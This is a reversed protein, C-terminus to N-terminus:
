EFLVRVEDESLLNLFSGGETIISDILDRKKDQLDMIKEEISNKAVLNFVQVNSKQGYRHARDSAQDMISPNWWPDYHIVVNAGTLNLGVGGAKLSILFLEREGANFMETMEMREKSKTAGTLYFYEAIKGDPTFIPTKELESKIIDLMRTFQSFLLVRHGSEISLQITEIALNLKGSGGKYDELFLSPHCCLQRLRTLQALVRMRNDSFSNNEIINDFNAITELLTAQYLKSQELSMEAQLTTEIKIPLEKLVSEKIRRLVFPAIQRKLKTAANSNGYRIIPIEYIESFKNTSFLYGPMIFDFISWLEILTNEIPTGTLAFRVKGNLEKISKSTLTSPNKINQAEDAIIFAFTKDRYNDIDRKLMDYTTIFVDVNSLQLLDKRKDPMGAIIQTTLRPAFRAIESEWNFLLSTPCIVLSYKGKKRESELLAIIQLTKGLGMDDALIGGFGYHALTKLWYFGEEQYKRMVATLTKPLSFQPSVSYNFKNLLAEFNKNRKITLVNSFEESQVLENVYLAKHSHLSISKGQAENKSADLADLFKLSTSVFDDQMSFFRGDRLRFYKKRARYSDLAELLETISFGAEDLTINLLNGSLRLGLQPSPMKIINKQLSASVFIDANKKMEDIGSSLMAEGDQSPYLFLYMMEDDSLRYRGNKKDEVFGFSALQRKILYEAVIDRNFITRPVSLADFSEVGYDFDVRCIIDRKSTDFYLSTHLPLVNKSLKEDVIGKIIGLRKLTPLIITLFVNEDNGSILIERGPTEDLAKLLQEIIQGDFKEIRYLMEEVLIYKFKYGSIIKFAFDDSAVVTGSATHRINISFPPMSDVFTITQTGEIEANLSKGIFLAFFDDINHTTLKIERSATLTTYQMQYQRVFRKSSENYIDEEKTIFEIIKQSLPTFMSLRHSFSLGQGYTVKEGTKCSNAFSSLNKIVYLKNRGISFTVYLGATFSHLTPVLQIHTGNLLETSLPISEDIGDFIVEELKSTLMHAHQRMKSASIMRVHGEAFAFLAAVVHKCAGQWINHSECSCTYNKLGIKEDVNLVADYNKYNGEITARVITIDDAENFTNYSLIKGNRYYREGREYVDPNSSLKLITGKTINGGQATAM